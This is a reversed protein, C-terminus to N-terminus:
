FFEPTGFRNFCNALDVSISMVTSILVLYHRVYGDYKILNLVGSITLYVIIKNAM